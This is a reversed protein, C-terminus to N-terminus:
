LADEYYLNSGSATINSADVVLEHDCLTITPRIINVSKNTGTLSIQIGNTKGTIFPIQIVTNNHNVLDIGVCATEEWDLFFCGNILTGLATYTGGIILDTNTNQEFHLGDLLHACGGDLLIGYGSEQFTGNIIRAGSALGSSDIYRLGYGVARTSIVNDMLPNNMHHNAGTSLKFGDGGVDEVRCNRFLPSWGNSLEIGNAGFGTIFVNECCLRGVFVGYIGDDSGAGGTLTINKIKPYLVETGLGGIIEIANGSGTYAITSGFIGGDIITYSTTIILASTTKYTVGGLLCKGSDIALQLAATDDAIGNGIAGYDEAYKLRNAITNHEAVHGPNGASWNTHLM